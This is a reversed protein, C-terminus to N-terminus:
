KGIKQVARQAKSLLAGKLPVYGLDDAKAQAPGLLHSIAKRVEDAKEGNGKQYALIWTLTSIPYSDPGLPNPSEGALNPDLKISNLAAAGGKMNPKVFKGALNQIAAAKLPGKVFAQNM